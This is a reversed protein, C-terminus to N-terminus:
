RAPPPLLARIRECVRRSNQDDRYKFFLQRATRAQPEYRDPDKLATRIAALTDGFTPCIPGPFALSLDYLLGDQQSRYHELDYAFCVAPRGLFVAEIYVSSYDTVLVACERAVASFEPHVATSLDLLLDHDLYGGLNFGREGNRFYHPRFGLVADHERLLAKLQAIEDASFQYYHADPSIKTQRYTPAYLVLRRGGLASRLRQLSHRLYHPLREEPMLLFDNRPLGTLWVQQYNLPHFMAAMAYSDVDSSAVLGAYRTRELTRYPVRDTHKRTAENAACLLRKLPIGHWLNVVVRRRLSLKVVAFTGGGWRLAFDMAISHTVLVVRCRLLLLLARWSGHEVFEHNVAGEIAIGAPSGRHFILKRIAPDGKVHEFLARQNEVFRDGHLHHTAFAWHDARKPVLADALRWLPHLLHFLPRSLVKM